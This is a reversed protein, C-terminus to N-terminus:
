DESLLILQMFGDIIHPIYDFNPANRPLTAGNLQFFNNVTAELSISGNKIDDGYQKYFHIGAVNSPIDEYSFASESNKLLQIAEADMTASFALGPLYKESLYAIYFFHHM